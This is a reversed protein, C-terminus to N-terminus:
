PSRRAVILVLAAVALGVVTTLVIWTSGELAAGGERAYLATGLVGLTLLGVLVAALPGRVGGAHRESALRLATRVEPGTVAPHEREYERIADVLIQGLERSRPSPPAGGPPVFPVLGLMIGGKM